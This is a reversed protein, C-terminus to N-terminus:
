INIVVGAALVDGTPAGTPSGGQPEDSIALAGGPLGAVLNAPLRVNIAGDADLLGLSVHLGDGAILWLERARDAPTDQPVADPAREVRLTASQADYRALFLGGQGEAVLEAVINGNAGDPATSLTTLMVAAILAAAVALGALPRAMGFRRWWVPRVVTGFLAADIRAKASAPPVIEAIEVQALAAFRVDWASVEARLDPETALRARFRTLADGELLGLAYEAALVGDDPDMDPRDTM